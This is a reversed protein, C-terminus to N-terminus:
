SISLLLSFLIKVARGCYDTPVQFLKRKGIVRYKPILNLLWVIFRIEGLDLARPPIM